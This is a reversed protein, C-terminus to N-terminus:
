FRANVAQFLLQKVVGTKGTSANFTLWASWRTELAGLERAVHRKRPDVTRIAAALAHAELRQIVVDDSGVQDPLTSLSLPVGEKPYREAQRNLPQHQGAWGTAIAHFPAPAQRKVIGAPSSRACM